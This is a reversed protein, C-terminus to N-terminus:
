YTQIYDRSYHVAHTLQLQEYWNDSLHHSTHGTGLRVYYNKQLPIDLLLYDVYFDTSVVHAQGHPRVEFHISSGLSAQVTTGLVDLNFAPFIGGLSGRLNKSLLINEIVMHHAYQDATFVPVFKQEPFFHIRDLVQAYLNLSSFFMISFFVLSYIKNNM